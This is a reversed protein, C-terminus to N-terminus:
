KTPLSDRCRMASVYTEGGPHSRIANTYRDLSGADSDFQYKLRDMVKQATAGPGGATLYNGIASRTFQDRTTGPAVAPCADAGGRIAALEFFSITEITM